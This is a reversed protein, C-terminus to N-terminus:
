KKKAKNHIFKITKRNKFKDLPINISYLLKNTNFEYRERIDILIINYNLYQKLYNFKYLTIIYNNENNLSKKNIDKFFVKKTKKISISNNLLNSILLENYSVKGIGLIIKLAEIAQLIGTYGTIVGLTGHNNCNNDKLKLKKPYISAYNISNKYNFVSIQSEFQQIAGYIHIKHLKNCVSDIIYRTGFNDTTDLIIDYYQIINFANEKNLKYEHIIIKSYTNFDNLQKKACVVKSKHLNKSNYLIQRNLNSRDIYDYDIIGIYGIGSITLYLSAPCGLGGAGIILVKAKKLRKQGNLGINRIMLHKSYLIYEEESFTTNKINPNLM